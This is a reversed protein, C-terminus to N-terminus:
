SLDHAINIDAKTRQYCSRCVYRMRDYLSSHMYQRVLYGSTATELIRQYSLANPVDALLKREGSTSM